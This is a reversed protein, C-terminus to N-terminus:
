GGSPPRLRAASLRARLSAFDSAMSGSNRGTLRLARASTSPCEQRREANLFELLDVLLFRRRPRARGQGQLVFKVWGAKVAARLHKEDMELAAAAEKLNVTTRGEFARVLRDPCSLPAPSSEAM